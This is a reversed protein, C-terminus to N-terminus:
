KLIYELGIDKDTWWIVKYGIVNRWKYPKREGTWKRKYVPRYGIPHKKVKKWTGSILEWKYHHVLVYRDVIDEYVKHYRVKVEALYEVCYPILGM